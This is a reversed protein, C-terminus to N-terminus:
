RLCQRLDQMCRRWSVPRQYVLSAPLGGITQRYCLLLVLSRSEVAEHGNEAVWPLPTQGNSEDKAELEAGRELLLKVVAEHGNMAAWSLPAVVVVAEPGDGKELLPKVVAGNEAAYSLPMQGNSEDKAELEAGKELLLKM